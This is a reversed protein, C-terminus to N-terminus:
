RRLRGPQADEPNPMEVFGFGRNLGERRPDQIIRADEVQGHAAFAQRLEDKALDFRLNGCFITVM